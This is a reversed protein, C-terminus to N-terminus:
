RGLEGRKKYLDNKSEVGRELGRAGGVVGGKGAVVEVFDM